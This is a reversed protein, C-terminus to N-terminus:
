VLRETMLRPAVELMELELGAEELANAACRRVLWPDNNEPSIHGLLVRRVGNQALCVLAKACDGNSLHGNKSRIRRKLEDPYDGNRLMNPDYNSELIVNEAKSVHELIKESMQGIDTCLCFSVGNGLVLYSVCAASDHPVSCSSVTLSGLKEVYEVPHVTIKNRFEFGKARCLALFSPETMHVPIDHNKLLTNLGSVHDSHEHTIFIADIDSLELGLECLVTKTMRCSLGFDILIRSEGDSVLTCNARSGSAFSWVGRGVKLKPLGDDTKPCARGLSATATQASREKQLRAAEEKLIKDFEVNVENEFADIRANKSYILAM